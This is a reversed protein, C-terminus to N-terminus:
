FGVAQNENDAAGTDVWYHTGEQKEHGAAKMQEYIKPSVLIKGDEIAARNRALMFNFGLERFSHAYSILDQVTHAQVNSRHAQTMHPHTVSYEAEAFPLGDIGIRKLRHESDCVRSRNFSFLFVDKRDEVSSNPAVFQKPDVYQKIGSPCACNGEQTFGAKRITEVVLELKRKYENVNERWNPEGFLFITAANMRTNYVDRLVPIHTLTM